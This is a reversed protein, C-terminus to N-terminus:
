TAKSSYALDMASYGESTGFILGPMSHAFADEFSAARKALDEEFKAGFVRTQEAQQSNRARENWIQVLSTLPPMVGESGSRELEDCGSMVALYNSLSWGRYLCRDINEVLSELLWASFSDELKTPAPYESRTSDGLCTRWWAETRPQGNFYTPPGDRLVRVTKEFRRGEALQTRSQGLSSVIALRIGQLKLTAQEIRFDLISSSGYKSANFACHKRAMEPVEIHAKGHLSFDPVWSPFNHTMQQNASAEVSSLISLSTTEEIMLVAVQQYLQAPTLGYDPRLSLEPFGSLQCRRKLIGLIGFITDRTDSANCSRTNLLLDEFIGISNINPEKIASHNAQSMRRALQIFQNQLAIDNGCEDRMQNLRIVQRIADRYTIISASKVEKPYYCCLDSWNLFGCCSVLLHWQLVEHGWLIEIRHALAIEQCVWVRLFWENQFFQCIAEWQQPTWKSRGFKALFETDHYGRRDCKMRGKVLDEPHCNYAPALSQIDAAVAPASQAAPGLWVIVVSASLYIQAMMRVQANRESLDAQNISIADVWLPATADRKEAAVSNHYLGSPLRVYVGRSRPLNHRIQLLGDHLNPTVECRAGDILIWRQDPYPGTIENNLFSRTGNPRSWTYSLARYHPNKNLDVVKLTCRIEANKRLSPTIKLLRISDPNVLPAYEYKPVASNTAVVEM